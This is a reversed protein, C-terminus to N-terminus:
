SSHEKPEVFRPRCEDVIERCVESADNGSTVSWRLDVGALHNRRYLLEDRPRPFVFRVLHYWEAQVDKFTSSVFVRITRWTGPM